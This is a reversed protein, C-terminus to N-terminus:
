HRTAWAPMVPVPERSFYTVGPSSELMLKTVAMVIVREPLNGSALFRVVPYQKGSQYRGFM